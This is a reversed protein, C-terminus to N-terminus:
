ISIVLYNSQITEDKWHLMSDAPAMQFQSFVTNCDTIV